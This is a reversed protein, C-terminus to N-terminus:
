AKATEAKKLAKDKDSIEKKMAKIQSKSEELDKQLSLSQQKVQELDKELSGASKKLENIQKTNTQITKDRTTVKKKENKVAQNLSSIKKAQDEQDKDSNLNKKKLEEYKKVLSRYEDISVVGMAKLYNDTLQKFNFFPHDMPTFFIDLSGMKQFMSTLEGFSSLSQEFLQDMKKLQSTSDFMDTFANQWFNIYSNNM